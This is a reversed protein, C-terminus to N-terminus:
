KGAITIMQKSLKAARQAPLLQLVASANKLKMRPLISVVTKDDLNAMLKAVSRADMGDYLKALQATRASEAQELNLLKKNVEKELRELERQRTDLEKKRSALAAKESELWNVQELSDKETMRGEQEALEDESPEYDLFALNDMIREIASEDEESLNLDDPVAEDGAQAAARDDSTQIEPKRDPLKRHERQTTPRDETAATSRDSLFYMAAVAIVMVLVVLAAGFLVLKMLGGKGSKASTSEPQPAAAKDESQKAEEPM